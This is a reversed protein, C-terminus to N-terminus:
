PNDAYKIQPENGIMMEISDKADGTSTTTQRTTNPKKAATTKIVRLRDQPEIRDTNDDPVESIHIRTAAMKMM